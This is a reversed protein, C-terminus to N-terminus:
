KKKDGKPPRGRKKKPEDSANQMSPFGYMSRCEEGPM